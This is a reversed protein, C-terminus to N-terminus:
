ECVRISITYSDVMERDASANIRVEGASVGIEAVRFM